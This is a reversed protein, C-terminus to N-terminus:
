ALLRAAASLNGNSREVAEHPLARELGELGGSCEQLPDLLAHCDVKM